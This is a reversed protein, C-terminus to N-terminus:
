EESKKRKILFTKNECNNILRKYNPIHKIIALTSVIICFVLMYYDNPSFLFYSLFLALVCSTSGLSVYKTILVVIFFFLIAVLLFLYNYALLVGGITSIGKGGKFKLFIPYIHGLVAALGYFLPHIKLEFLPSNTEILKKTIFVFLAGKLLDLLFVLLGFIPGLTRSANTAGINHSGHERLDIKRFKGVILGFPISGVLYASILMIIPTIYGMYTGGVMSM